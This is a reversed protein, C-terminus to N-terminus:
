ENLPGLTEHIGAMTIGLAPPHSLLAWRSCSDGVACSLRSALALCGNSAMAALKAPLGLSSVARPKSQRDASPKRIVAL